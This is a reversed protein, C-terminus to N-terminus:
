TTLSYLVALSYLIIGMVRLCKLFYCFLFLRVEVVAEIRLLDVTPRRTPITMLSPVRNNGRRVDKPMIIVKSIIRTSSYQLITAAYKRVTVGDNIYDMKDGWNVVASM